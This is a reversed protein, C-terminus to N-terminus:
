IDGVPLSDLSPHIAFSHIEYVVLILTLTDRMAHAKGVSKEINEVTVTDSIVCDGNVVQRLLM